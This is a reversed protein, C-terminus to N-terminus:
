AENIQAELKLLIEYENPTLHNSIWDLVWRQDEADRDVLLEGMVKSQRQTPLNKRLLPIVIAEEIELCDEQAVRLLIVQGYLHQSTRPIISTAGIDEELVRMVDSVHELLKAQRGGLMTWALREAPSLEVAKLNPDTPESMASGIEKEARYMIVTAWRTFALNFPQLSCGDGLNRALEVAEDAECRLAKHILPMANLPQELTTIETTM